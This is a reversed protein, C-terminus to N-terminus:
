PATLNINVSCGNKDKINVTYNGPCLQNKYRNTYGDPWAYSYPSTGGTANIMIWEKCSCGTCDATGKVFQATLTCGCSNVTFTKIITDAGCAYNLVLKVNYTGASTFTHSPNNIISTNYGASAPDGFNWSHSVVINAAGSCNSSNVVPSAFNVTLCNVVTTFTLTPKFYTAIFNPLGLFSNRGALPVGNDVYNCGVGLTNPNNIVGLWPAQFRAYYIKSDPGLQLAGRIQTPTAIRIGSAIIAAKSGACMNVQTIGVATSVYLKTGDPSFELGYAGAYMSNEFTFPAGAFTIPNSVTGLSTNFDFIELYNFNNKWVACALKSGDPSPRLYGIAESTNAIGHVIGLASLVPVASIGAATVLYTRFQTSNWDHSIVWIDKRNCHMVATIKETSPTFLLTNKTTVDGLGTNLSMDVVSYRLGNAGSQADAYFVYYITSSGPRQVILTQTTSTNGLLGFGNPMQIHNKNWIKVGNTYFLLNGGNDSITACGEWAWMKGTNVAIPSGSTFSVGASDGFFWWNAQGQSYSCFYIIFLSLFLLLIRIPNM